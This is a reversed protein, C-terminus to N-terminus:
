TKKDQSSILKLQYNSTVTSTQYYKGNYNIFLWFPILLIFKYQFLKQESHRYTHINFRKIDLHFIKRTIKEKDRLDIKILNGHVTHMKTM